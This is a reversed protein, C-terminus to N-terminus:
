AVAPLVDREVTKTRVMNGGITVEAQVHIKGSADLDGGALLYSYKGKNNTQDPDPTANWTKVTGAEIKAKLVVSGGTLDVAVLTGNQRDRIFGVILHRSGQVFEEGTM